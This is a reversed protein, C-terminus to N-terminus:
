ASIWVAGVCAIILVWILGCKSYIAVCPIHKQSQMCYHTSHNLRIWPGGRGEEWDARLHRWLLNLLIICVEGLSDHRTTTIITDWYFCWFRLSWPPILPLLSIFSNKTFCFTDPTHTQVNALDKFLCFFSFTKCLLWVTNERSFSAKM